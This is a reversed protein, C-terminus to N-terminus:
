GAQKFRAVGREEIVDLLDATLPVGLGADLERGGVNVMERLVRAAAREEFFMRRVAEEVVEAPTEFLGGALQDLLRQTEPGVEIQM